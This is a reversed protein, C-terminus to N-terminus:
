ILGTDVAKEMLAVIISLGESNVKEWRQTETNKSLRRQLRSYALRGRRHKGNLPKVSVIRFNIWEESENRQPIHFLAYYDNQIVFKETM